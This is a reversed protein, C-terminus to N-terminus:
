EDIKDMFKLTFTDWFVKVKNYKILNEIIENFQNLSKEKANSIFKAITLDDADEPLTFENFYIFKAPNDELAANNIKVEMVITFNTM